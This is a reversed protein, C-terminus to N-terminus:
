TRPPPLDPGTYARMALRSLGAIPSVAAPLPSLGLTPARPEVTACGICDHHAVPPPAGHRDGHQHRHEDGAPMAAMAEHCPMAPVRAPMALAPIALLGILLALVLRRLM